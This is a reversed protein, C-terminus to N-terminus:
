GPQHAPIEVECSLSVTALSSAWPSCIWHPAAEPSGPWPDPELPCVKFWSESGGQWLHARQPTRGSGPGPSRTGGVWWSEPTPNWCHECCSLGDTVTCFDINCTSWESTQTMHPDTMWALHCVKEPNLIQSVQNLHILSMTPYVPHPLVPFRLM